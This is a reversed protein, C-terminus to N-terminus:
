PKVITMIYPKDFYKNAVDLIDSPTVNQINKKYTELYNIDRGSTLYWSLLEAEDMNTELSIVLNGLIKDKAEAM